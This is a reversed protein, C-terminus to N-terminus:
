LKNTRMAREADIAPLTLVPLASVFWNAEEDTMKMFQCDAGPREISVEIPHDAGMTKHIQLEIGSPTIAKLVVIKMPEM